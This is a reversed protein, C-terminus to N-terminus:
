LLTKKTQLLSINKVIGYLAYGKLNDEVVISINEQATLM